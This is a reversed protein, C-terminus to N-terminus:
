RFQILFIACEYPACKLISVTATGAPWLLNNLANMISCSLSYHISLDVLLVSYQLSGSQWFVAPLIYLIYIYVYREGGAAASEAKKREIDLLLPLGAGCHPFATVELIVAVLSM